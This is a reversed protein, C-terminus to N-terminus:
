PLNFRRANQVAVTAQPVLSTIPSYLFAGPPTVATRLSMKVDTIGSGSINAISTLWSTLSTSLATLFAPTWQGAASLHVERGGPLYMSGRRPTGVVNKRVLIANNISTAPQNIAGPQGSFSEATVGTDESRFSVSNLFVDESLEDLLNNETSTRLRDALLQETGGTHQLHFVNAASRGNQNWLLTVQGHSM